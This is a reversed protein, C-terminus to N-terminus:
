EAAGDPAADLSTSGDVGGDRCDPATVMVFYDSCSDNKIRIKHSDVSQILCMNGAAPAISGTSTGNESFSEFCSVDRPVCGLDHVLDYRKGGPFSLLLGSWPSSMYWGAEM